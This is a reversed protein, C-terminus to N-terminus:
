IERINLQLKKYRSMLYIEGQTINEASKTSIKSSWSSCKYLYLIYSLSISLSLSLYLSIAIFVFVQQLTWICLRTYIGNLKLYNLCIWTRNWIAWTAWWHFQGNYVAKGIFSGFIIGYGREVQFFCM